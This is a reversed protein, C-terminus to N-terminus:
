LVETPELAVVPHKYTWDGVVIDQCTAIVRRSFQKSALRFHRFFRHLEDIGIDIGRDLIVKLSPWDALIVDSTFHAPIPMPWRLLLLGTCDSVVPVALAEAVYAKHEIVFQIYKRIQQRWSELDNLRNAM